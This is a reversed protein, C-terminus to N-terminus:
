LTRYADGEIKYCGHSFLLISWGSSYLRTNSLFDGNLPTLADSIALDIKPASGFPIFLFWTRCDEGYANNKVLHKSDINEGRYNGTSLASFNGIHTTCATLSLLVLMLFLLKNM